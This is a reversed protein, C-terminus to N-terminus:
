FGGQSFIFITLIAGLTIGGTAPVQYSIVPIRGEFTFSFKYNGINIKQTLKDKRFLSYMLYGFGITGIILFQVIKYFFILILPIYIEKIPTLAILFLSSVIIMKTDGSGIRMFPIKELSLGLILSFLFVILYDTLSMGIYFLYISIFIWGVAHLRNYTELKKTDTYLNISMYVIYTLFIMFNEIM